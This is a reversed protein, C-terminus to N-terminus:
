AGTAVGPEIVEIVGFPQEIRELSDARSAFSFPLADRPVFRKVFDGGLQFGHAFAALGFLESEM